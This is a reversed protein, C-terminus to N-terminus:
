LEKVKGDLKKHKDVAKLLENLAGGRYLTRVNWTGIRM